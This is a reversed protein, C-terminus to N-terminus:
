ILELISQARDDYTVEGGPAYTGIFPLPRVDCHFRDDSRIIGRFGAKYFIKLVEDSTLDVMPCALDMAMGHTHYSDLRTKVGLSQLKLQHRVSRYGSIVTIPVGLDERVTTWANLVDRNVGGSLTTKCRIEKYKLNPAVVLDGIDSPGNSRFYSESNKM